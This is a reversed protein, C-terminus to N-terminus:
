AQDMVLNGIAFEISQGTSVQVSTTLVWTCLLYGATGSASTVMAAWGAASTMPATFPGYNLVATNSCVSPYANTAQTFIAPQRSYGATNVEALDSVFVAPSGGTGSTSPDATLLAIYRPASTVVGWTTGNWSEIVPTSTTNVWYLGPFWSPASTGLAPFAYGSLHNLTAEAGYQAIQSGM